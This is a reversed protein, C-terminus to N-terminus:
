GGGFLLAPLLYDEGRANVRPLDPEARRILFIIDFYTPSQGVISSVIDFYTPSQGVTLVVIDPLARGVERGSFEHRLFTPSPGVDHM